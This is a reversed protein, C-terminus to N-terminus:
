KLLGLKQALQRYEAEEKELSALFTDTEFSEVWQNREAEKKWADTQLMKRVADRWYDVVSNSIGPPGFLGRWNENVVDYGQESFTPVDKFRGGLRKPSNVALVRMRGAEVLDMLDLGGLGVDV